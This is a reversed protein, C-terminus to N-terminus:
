AGNRARGNVRLHYEYADAAGSAAYAVAADFTTFANLRVRNVSVAYPFAYAEGEVTVKVTLGDPRNITAQVRKATAKTDM